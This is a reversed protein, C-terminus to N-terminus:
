PAHQHAQEAQALQRNVETEWQTGKLATAWRRMEALNNRAQALDFQLTHCQLTDPHHLGLERVCLEYQEKVLPEADALKGQEFFHGRGNWGPDQQGVLRMYAEHVLATTQLTQGDSQRNM